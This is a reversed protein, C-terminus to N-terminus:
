QPQYNLRQQILNKCIEETGKCLVSISLYRIGDVWYPSLLPYSKCISPRVPYVKCENDYYPCPQPLHGKGGKCNAMDKVSRHSVGLYDAITKAEVSLIAIPSAKCCDGCRQCEFNRWFWEVNEPNVPVLSNLPTDKGRLRQYYDEVKLTM